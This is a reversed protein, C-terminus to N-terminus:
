DLRDLLNSFESEIELILWCQVQALQIDGLMRLLLILLSSYLSTFAAIAVFGFFATPRPILLRTGARVEHDLKEEVVFRFFRPNLVSPDSPLSSLKGDEM